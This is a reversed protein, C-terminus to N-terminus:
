LLRTRLFLCAGILSFHFSSNRKEALSKLVSLCDEGKDIRLISKNPSDFIIQM